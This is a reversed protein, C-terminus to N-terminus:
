YITTFHNYNAAYTDLVEDKQQWLEQIWDQFQARYTADQGYDGHLLQSPIMAKEVQVVIRPTKGCFFDWLRSQGKPYIITVNLVTRVRENMVALATAVGGAKPKLLHSFPSRQKSHKELTFCTGELFNTITVPYHQFRQCLKRTTELDKGRLEPHKELFARSYRKMFPFDLAWWALGLLPFWILEQKIFFKLFPIRRNFVRQLVFIDLWSQHNSILLYWEKNSLGDLGEIVWKTQRAMRFILNNTDIWNEAIRVLIQTCFHRWTAIPIVLKFITILYIQTCWFITNLLMLLITLSGQLFSLRSHAHPVQEQEHHINNMQQTTQIDNKNM